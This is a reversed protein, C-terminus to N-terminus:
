FNVLGTQNFKVLNQIYMIDQFKKSICCLKRIQCVYTCVIKECPVCLSADVTLQINTM